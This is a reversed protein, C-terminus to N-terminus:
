PTNRVACGNLMALGTRRSRRARAFCASPSRCRVHRDNQQVERVHELVLSARGFRLREAGLRARNTGGTVGSARAAALWRAGFTAAQLTPGAFHDLLDGTPEALRQAM